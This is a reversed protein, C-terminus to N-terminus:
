ATEAPVPSSAAEKQDRRNQRSNARKEPLVLVKHRIVEDALNLSVISSPRPRPSRPSSRWWTTARRTTNMEYAFRRRGWRDINSSRM